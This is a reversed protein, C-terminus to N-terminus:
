SILILKDSSKQGPQCILVFQQGKWLTLHFRGVSFYTPLMMSHSKRTASIKKLFNLLRCPLLYSIFLRNKLTSKDLSKQNKSRIQAMKSQNMSKSCNASSKSPPSTQQWVIPLFTKIRKRSFISSRKSEKELNPMFVGNMVKCGLIFINILVM